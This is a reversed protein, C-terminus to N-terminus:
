SLVGYSVLGTLNGAGTATTKRVQIKINRGEVVFARRQMDGVTATLGISAGLNISDPFHYPYYLTSHTCAVGVSNYVQGDVEVRLQLTENTDEVNVSVNYVRCNPTNNLITYWTNQVPAAQNLTAPAQYQFVGSKRGAHVMTKVM